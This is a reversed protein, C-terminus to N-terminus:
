SKWAERHKKTAYLIKLFEENKVILLSNHLRSYKYFVCQVVCYHINICLIMIFIVNIYTGAWLMRSSWKDSNFWAEAVACEGGGGVDGVGVVLVVVVGDGGGVGGGGGVSGDGWLLLLVSLLFTSLFCSKQALIEKNWSWAEVKVVFLCM